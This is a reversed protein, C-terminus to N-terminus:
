IFVGATAGTRAEYPIVELAANLVVQRADQAEAKKLADAM